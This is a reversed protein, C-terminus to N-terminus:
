HRGQLLTMIEDLKKNTEVLEMLIALTLLDYEYDGKGKMAM